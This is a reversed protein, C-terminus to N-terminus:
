FNLLVVVQFIMQQVQPIQIKMSNLISLCALRFLRYKRSLGAVEKQSHDKLTELAITLYLKHIGLSMIKLFYHMKYSIKMPITLRPQVIGVLDQLGELRPYLEQISLSTPEQKSVKLKQMLQLKHLCNNPSKSLNTRQGFVWSTMKLRWFSHM